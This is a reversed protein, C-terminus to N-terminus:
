GQSTELLKKRIDSAFLKYENMMGESCAKVAAEYRPTGTAAHKDAVLKM